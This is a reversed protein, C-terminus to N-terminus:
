YLEQTKGTDEKDGEDMLCCLTEVLDEVLAYVKTHLLRTYIETMDKPEVDEVEPLPQDISEPCTEILSVSEKGQKEKTRRGVEDRRKGKKKSEKSEEVSKETMQSKTDGKNVDKPRSRPGSREEKAAAVGKKECVEDKSLNDPVDADSIPSEETKDIWTEGEPLGLLNRLWMAEGAMTDLLRRWLQQGIAAATLYCLKLESPESLQLLLSNLHALSKERTVTDQASEQEPLSLVAQRLTDVSLDWTSGPNVKQWLNKLDEVPQYLYQLKPNKNQFRQEETVYLEAPSSPREPSHVQRLAEYAMSRCMKVAVIKELKTQEPVCLLFVFTFFWSFLFGTPKQKHVGKHWRDVHRGTESESACNRQLVVEIFLRQDATIDQYLAVGRLTVQMSAGQLLVPHTNLQWVETENGPRESKFIFEVRQTDGPLIVGSSSNFYFHPKKTQSRLNPFSHPRPLQQWSYFIATTGENHMELHSSAREGTLAEFIMTASIGVEGQDTACNGTWMALQGCFRLAPVLLVNSPAEDYQALPDLNEKKDQHEKEKEEEKELLPSRCVTVLTFPKGSGIVELGNIDPKKIHMDRLVEGLQQYQNQLYASQDWTKSATRLTEAFNIGSEQRISSPQGVHTVPERRGRETQTLTAAIGSMEDGYRQPLKWFESGVHCGYGFHILPLVQNLLERQEQTDRFHNAQNMLLTQAPRHLLDSLYHQQRRRVRMNTQWNQLANSQINGHGLSVEHGNEHDQHRAPAEHPPDGQSKSIQKVLEMEGKAELYSRFDELSGLVSHPLVMGQDDFRIGELGAHGLPQSAPDLNVPLNKGVCAMLLPKQLGKPPKPVRLKNLEQPHNALAQTDRVNSTSSKSRDGGFSSLESTKLKKTESPKSISHTNVSPPQDPNRGPTTEVGFHTVQVPLALWALEAESINGGSTVM